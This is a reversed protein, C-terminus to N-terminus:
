KKINKLTRTKLHGSTLNRKSYAGLFHKDRRGALNAEAQSVILLHHICQVCENAKDSGIEM